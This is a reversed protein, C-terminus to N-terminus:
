WLRGSYVIWSYKFREFM